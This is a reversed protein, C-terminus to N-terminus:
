HVPGGAKENEHLASRESLEKEFLHVWQEAAVKVTGMTNWIMLVDKSSLEGEDREKIKLLIDRSTELICLANGPTPKFDPGDYDKLDKNKSGGLLSREELKAIEDAIELLMAKPVSVEEGPMKLILERMKKGLESM